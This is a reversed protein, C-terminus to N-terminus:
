NTHFRPLTSKPRLEKVKLQLKNISRLLFHILGQVWRQHLYFACRILSHNAEMALLIPRLNEPLSDRLIKELPGLILTLPTRLEHSVNAFFRTKARDLEKLDENAKEVQM